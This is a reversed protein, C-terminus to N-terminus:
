KIRIGRKDLFKKNVEKKIEKMKKQLEEVKEQDSLKKFSYRESLKSFEEETRVGLMKQYESQEAGTFNYTGKQKGTTEYSIKKPAVQPIHKTEGTKNYLEESLKEANSPTYKKTQGPNVYIDFLRPIGERNQKSTKGVTDVKEPLTNSLPTRTKLRNMETKLKSEDYTNRNTSDKTKGIQNLASGFPVFQQPLQMAVNQVGEMLNKGSNFSYGGFLESLGTLVSQNFLTAGGSKVAELIVNKMDKESKGEHYIDAGIMLPIAAPQAWDITNYTDGTKVSYPLKGIQKELAAADKDKAGQGQLVGDKALRYGLAIIASGTFARGIEDVAKKQTKLDGTKFTKSINFASRAFGAPSYDIAKDLINAPTKTFPMVATGLGIKGNGGIKNLGNQIEKFGKSLKSVNQFTRDAAVEYALNVMEETPKSVKNAKMQQKLSDNFTGQFFPKDGLSLLTYTAKESGAAINNLYEKVNKPNEIKRFAQSKPLDYKGGGKSTDVDHKFDSVVDKLGQIGGTFQEKVNPLSTTRQGTKKSVAKDIPTSIVDKVNELPNLVANGLVNKIQTRTNTLLNIRQGALIKDSFTSPVKDAITKKVQAYLIDKKREIDKVEKSLTKDTTLYKAPINENFDSGLKNKLTEELDQVKNMTNIIFDMETDTLEPTKGEKLLKEFEKPNEKKMTDKVGDVVKQAQLLAGEPTMKKWTSLAQVAQGLNTAEGRVHSLWNRLEEKNGKSILDKTIIGSEVSDEASRVGENLIRQYAGEYNNKLEETARQFSQENAKQEYVGNVSDVIKQVEPNDMFSSNKFTNTKMKSDAMTQNVDQLPTKVEMPTNVRPQQIFDHPQGELNSSQRIPLKNKDILTKDSYVQQKKAIYNNDVPIDEGFIDDTYGNTLRDDMLMEVRKSLANNEKGHDEILNDTAKKLDAYSAGTIDKLLAVDPSVQRGNGWNGLREGTKADKIAGREGKIARDLEGKFVNAESQIHPQLEQHEFSMAKIKKNGVNTFDRETPKLDTPSLIRQPTKLKDKPNLITKPQETPTKIDLPTNISETPKFDQLPERPTSELKRSNSNLNEIPLDKDITNQSLDEIAQAATKREFEIPNKSPLKINKLGEKVGTGAGFLLAGGLAGSAGAKLNEEPNLTDTMSMLLDGSGNDVAGRAMSSIVKGGISNAKNGLMKSVKEGAKVGVRDTANLLSEGDVNLAKMAALTGISDAAFNGITGLDKKEKESGDWNVSSGKGAFGERASDLTRDIFPIKESAYVIPDLTYNLVKGIVNNGRKKNMYERFEDLTKYGTNDKQETPKFDPVKEERGLYEKFAASERPKYEGVDSPQWKMVDPSEGEPTYSNNQRRSMESIIDTYRGAVDNDRKKQYSKKEKESTIFPNM